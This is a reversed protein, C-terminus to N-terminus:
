RFSEQEDIGFIPLDELVEAENRLTPRDGHGYVPVIVVAASAGRCPNSSGCAASTARLVAVPMSRIVLSDILAAPAFSGGSSLPESWSTLM